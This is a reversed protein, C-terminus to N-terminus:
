MSTSQPTTGGRVWHPKREITASARAEAQQMAM